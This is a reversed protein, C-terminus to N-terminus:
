GVETSDIAVAQSCVKKHTHCSGLQGARLLLFKQGKKVRFHEISYRRVNTRDHSPSVHDEWDMQVVREYKGSGANLWGAQM